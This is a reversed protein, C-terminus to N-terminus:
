IKKLIGTFELPSEAPILIFDFDMREGEELLIRKEGWYALEDGRVGFFTPKNDPAIVIGLGRKLNRGHLFYMWRDYPTIGISQWDTKGMLGLTMDIGSSKKVEPMEHIEGDEALFKKFRNNSFWEIGINFPDFGTNRLRSKVFLCPLGKKITLILELQLTSGPSFVAKVMKEVSDDKLLSCNKLHRGSLVFTREPEGMFRYYSSVGASDKIRIVEGNSSSIVFVAGASKLVIEGKSLHCNFTEQEALSTVECGLCLVFVLVFLFLNRRM